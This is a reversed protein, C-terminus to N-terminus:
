LRRGTKIEFLWKLLFALLLVSWIAVCFILEEKNM